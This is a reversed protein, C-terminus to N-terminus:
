SVDSTWFTLSDDVATIFEAYRPNFRIISPVEMDMDLQCIPRQLSSHRSNDHLNYVAVHKNDERGFVYKSDPTLCASSYKLSEETVSASQDQNQLMVKGTYANLVLFGGSSLSLLICEGDTSFEIHSVTVGYPPKPFSFQQFPKLDFSKINYLSITLTSLSAVAFLSATADFAAVAPSTINLLGQCTSSRMDWLRLTNDLSTSLFLEDVPSVDLSIVKDKHGVFYRIYRNSNLDLFRLTDGEKTSAYVTSTSHHSFCALHAGYKKSAFSRVFKGTTCNYLHLMDDTSCCLCLEGSDDFNVSTIKKGKEVDRLVKTPRFKSVLNDDIPLTAM